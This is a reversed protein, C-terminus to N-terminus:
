PIFIVALSAATLGTVDRIGLLKAIPKEGKELLGALHVGFIMVAYFLVLFLVKTQDILTESRIGAVGALAGGLCVLGLLAVAWTEAQQATELSIQSKLRSSLFDLWHAKEM